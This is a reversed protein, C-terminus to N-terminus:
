ITKRLDAPPLKLQGRYKTVTRRAVVVGRGALMRTLDVDSLPTDCDEADIMEKLLARVAAASCTGGHETALERSFFHKFEFIGAPTAMYKNGTARSITSEHLGLSEACERLGYPKLAMEGYEFFNRQHAVIAEAVRQITSFRQEVNKILWRAEQLEQALPARDKCRANRLMAAYSQNLRTRPLIAPNTVVCWANKVKRVIVDPTVYVARSNSYRQGPKPDLGRILQFATRLEAPSCGLAREVETYERRALRSLHDDIIRMALQRTREAAAALQPDQNDPQLSLAHLQLHLCEVLDRAGIGPIDLQQVLKLAISLEAADPPPEIELTDALACLDERLYGDDDLAEVVLEVLLRDRESLNYHHLARHLHQQLSLQIAQSEGAQNYDDDGSGKSTPYAGLSNLGSDDDDYSGHESFEAEHDAQTSTADTSDSRDAEDLSDAGTATSLSQSDGEARQMLDSEPDRHEDEQDTASQLEEEEEELFPNNALAHQLEQALELSSLQLLKVSQQLRPTLTLNQTVRLNFGPQIM